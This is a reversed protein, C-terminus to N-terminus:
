CNMGLWTLMSGVVVLVAAVTALLIGRRLQEKINPPGFGSSTYFGPLPGRKNGGPMKVARVHIM